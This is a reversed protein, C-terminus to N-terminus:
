TRGRLAYPTLLGLSDAVLLSTASTGYFIDAKPNAKEALVKATIIGTSDRVWNIKIDPHEKQFADQLPRLEEAELATYVTLTTDAAAPAISFVTVLFAAVMVALAKHIRRSICSTNMTLVGETLLTTFGVVGRRATYANEIM